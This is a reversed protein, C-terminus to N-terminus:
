KLQSEIECARQSYGSKGQCLDHFLVFASDRKKRRLQAIGLYWESDALRAGDNVNTAAALDGAAEDHDKLFLESVGLYLRVTGDQPYKEALPKLQEAAGAYDDSQYKQLSRALESPSPQTGDSAGRTALLASPSVHIALKELPVEPLPRSDAVQAAPRETDTPKLVFVAVAGCAALALTPVWWRRRIWGETPQAREFARPAQRQIRDRIHAAEVPTPTGFAISDLDEFLHTCVDCQSMHSRIREAQDDPLVGERASYLLAPDPCSPLQVRAAFEKEDMDFDNKSPM